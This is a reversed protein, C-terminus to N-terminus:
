QRLTEVGSYIAGDGGVQWRVGCGDILFYLPFICIHNSICLIHMYAFVSVFEPGCVTMCMCM